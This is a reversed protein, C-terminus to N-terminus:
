DKVCKKGYESCAAERFGLSEYLHRARNGVVCYLFPERHGREFLRNVLFRVFERGLGEGQRSIKIAVCSLEAGDIHAYGVIEDGLAYVYRDEATDAWHRRMEASPEEPASDPFCGTSVRMEHFAEASLRQAEAFDRDQYRRIPLEKEAFAEGQYKMYASSFEKKYGCAEAFSRAAESRIDWCTTITRLKPSDMRQEAAEAAARGHERNRCKPFIYVYLFGATGDAETAICCLGVIENERRLGYIDEGNGAVAEYFEADADKADIQPFYQSVSQIKCIEVAREGVTNRM